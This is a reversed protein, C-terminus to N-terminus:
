HTSKLFLKKFFLFIDNQHIKLHFTSGCKWVFEIPFLNFNYNFIHFGKINLQTM